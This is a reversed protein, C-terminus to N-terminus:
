KQRTAKDATGVRPQSTKRSPRRATPVRLPEPVIPSADFKEHKTDGSKGSVFLEGDRLELTELSLPADRTDRPQSLTVLAVPDGHSKRWELQLNLVQAAHSIRDLVQGLPVPLAGARAGRIRLAVVNPEQLYAEFTLSLVTVLDGTQYRCGITAENERLWIRPDRLEGPLMEPYNAALELALWANIQEATFLSQWSGDQNLDGALATARAVFEDRAEGQDQPQVSIAAHYFEPVRQSARYVGYLLGGVVVLLAAVISTIKVIRRV